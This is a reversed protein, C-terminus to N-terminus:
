RGSKTKVKGYVTMEKQSWKIRNRKKHLIKAEVMVTLTAARVLFPSPVLDSGTFTFVGPPTGELGWASIFYSNRMKLLFFKISMYKKFISFDVLIFSLCYNLCNLFYLPYIAFFTILFKQFKIVNVTYIALPCRQRSIMISINFHYRTNNARVEKNCCVILLYMKKTKHLNFGIIICKNNKKEEDFWVNLKSSCLITTQRTWQGSLSNHLPFLHNQTICVQLLM